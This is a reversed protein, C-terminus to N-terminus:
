TVLEMSDTNINYRLAKMTAGSDVSSFVTQFQSVNFIELVEKPIPDPAPDPDPKPVERAELDERHQQAFLVMARSVAVTDNNNPPTHLDRLMIDAIRHFFEAHSIGLLSQCARDAPSIPLSGPRRALHLGCIQALRGLMCGIGGDDKPIDTISFQYNQPHAHIHRATKLVAEYMNM